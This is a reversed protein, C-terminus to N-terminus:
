RKLTKITRNLFTFDCIVAIEPKPSIVINSSKIDLHCLNLDHLYELGKLVDVLWKKFIKLSDPNERFEKTQVKRTLSTAQLPMIFINIKLTRLTLVELLPMINKHNLLPWIKLEYKSVEKFQVIKAAITSKLATDAM